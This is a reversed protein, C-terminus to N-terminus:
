ILRHLCIFSSAVITGEFPTTQELSPYYSLTPFQWRPCFIEERGGPGAPFHWGSPTKCQNEARSLLSTQMPTSNTGGTLMVDAYEDLCETQQGIGVPVNGSDESNEMRALTGMFCIVCLDNDKAATEECNPQKLGYHMQGVEEEEVKKDEEGKSDNGMVAYRVESMNSPAEMKTHKSSVPLERKGDPTKNEKDSSKDEKGSLQESEKQGTSLNSQSLQQGPPIKTSKFMPSTAAASECVLTGNVAASPCCLAPNKVFTFLSANCKSHCM